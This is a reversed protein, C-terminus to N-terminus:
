PRYTSIIQRLFKRTYLVETGLIEGTRMDMM